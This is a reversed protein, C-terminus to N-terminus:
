EEMKNRFKAKKMIASMKRSIQEKENKNHSTCQILVNKIYETDVGLSYLYIYINLQILFIAYIHPSAKVQDAFENLKTKWNPGKFETYALILFLKEYNLDTERIVKEFSIALKSSFSLNVLVDQVLLPPITRLWKCVSDFTTKKEKRIVKDDNVQANNLDIIIREVLIRFVILSGICGYIYKKLYGVKRESSLGDSNRLINGCLLMCDILNEHQKQISDKSLDSPSYDGNRSKQDTIRDREKEPLTNISKSVESNSLMDVIESPDYDLIKYNKHAETALVELKAFASEVLEISNRNFCSYYDFVDIFRWWKESELLWKASSTKKECYKALFFELFCQYKFYIFSDDKELIGFSFFTTDFGSDMPNFGRSEHYEKVFLIFDSYPFLFLNKKYMEFALQGLFDCKNEFDYSDRRIDSLLNRGLIHEIFKTLLNAKSTPEIECGDRYLSLFISLMFPTRPLNIGDFISITKNVIEDENLARKEIYLQCLNRIQNKSFPSIEVSLNESSNMLENLQSSDPRLSIDDSVMFFSKTSSTFSSLFEFFDYNIKFSFNDIIFVFRNALLEEEIQKRSVTFKDDVFNIVFAHILNVLQTKTHPMKDDCSIVIPIKLLRNFNELYLQAFRYALVTKGSNKKGFILVRKMSSEILDDITIDKTTEGKTISTKKNKFFPPVFYSFKKADEDDILRGDLFLTKFYKNIGNEIAYKLLFYFKSQGCQIEWKGDSYHELSSDFVGRETYYQRSFVTVKKTEIDICYINYAPPNKRDASSNSLEEGALFLTESNQSICKYSNDRHIHGTLVMDFRRLLFEIDTRHDERISEIPHHLLAIKFDCMKIKELAESLEFKSIIINSADKSSAGASKWASNICVLGIDHKSKHHIVNATVRHQSFGLDNFMSVFNHYNDLQTLEGAYKSFPEDILRLYDMCLQDLGYYTLSKISDIDIEHNGPIYWIDKEGFLNNEMLPIFLTTLAYDYENKKGSWVLDGTFICLDIRQNEITKKIDDTLAKIPFPKSVTEKVDFHSDSLHLIRLM